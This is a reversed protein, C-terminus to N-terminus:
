ASSARKVSAKAVRGRSRRSAAFVTVDPEARIEGVVRRVTANERLFVEIAHSKSEHREMAAITLASDLEESISITIRRM